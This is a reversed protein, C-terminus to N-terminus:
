REEKMTAAVLPWRLSGDPYKLLLVPTEDRGPDAVPNSRLWEALRQESLECAILDAM